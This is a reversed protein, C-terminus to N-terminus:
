LLFGVCFTNMQTTNQRGTAVLHAQARSTIRECVREALAWTRCMAATGTTTTSGTYQTALDMLAAAFYVPRPLPRLKLDTREIQGSKQGLRRPIPRSVRPVPLGDPHGENSHLSSYSSYARESQPRTHEYGPPRLNL